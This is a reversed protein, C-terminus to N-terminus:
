HALAICLCGQTHVYGMLWVVSHASSWMSIHCLGKQFYVHPMKTAADSPLRYMFLGIFLYFSASCFKVWKMSFWLSGFCDCLINTAASWEMQKREDHFVMSFFFFLVTTNMFFAEGACPTDPASLIRTHTKDQYLTIQTFSCLPHMFNKM